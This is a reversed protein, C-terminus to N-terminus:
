RSESCWEVRDMCGYSIALTPEILREVIRELSRPVLRDAGYREAEADNKSGLFSSSALAAGLIM